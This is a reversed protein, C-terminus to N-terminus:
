FTLTIGGMFNIGAQPYVFNETILNGYIYSYTYGNSAYSRNLINNVWLSFKVDPFNKAKLLYSLMIDHVHYANLSRDPNSTNDLYQSGVYKSIWGIEMGKVPMFSIQVAAIHAPSFSIDTYNHVSDVVDFGNTYDYLTETFKKIKNMSFTYNGSLTIMRHVRVTSQLEIGTRYSEPVNIRIPAGVDNLAGTLVLQDKYHMYYINADLRWINAAYSYGGELDIMIEAKPGNGEPADIIDARVPERGAVGAYIWASSRGNRWDVGAKPNFFSFNRAFDIQIGGNDIGKGSYNVYRYQIDGFISLGYNLIYRGKLYGSYETKASTNRYYEFTGEKNVAYEAWIVEGYHRGKYHNVAGGFILELRNRRYQLSWIGGFFDNNLWRRRIVDGQDIHLVTDGFVDYFLTDSPDFPNLFLLTDGPATFQIPELSYFDFNQNRKYEEYYGRGYTYHGAAHFTLTSSFNHTVHLQYHDQRYNDVQQPYTYYNYTKGSNFLNVSDLPVEYISGLNNYYHSILATDNGEYVAQPTGWWSQYTKEHGAFSIARVLTKSTRYAGQIYYSKLDSAARDIYGDSNIASLRGEFSWERLPQPGHRGPDTGGRPEEFKKWGTGLQLTHRRTNFSGAVTTLEAFPTDLNRGTQMNLSAGFAGTGNTSTGAGRQIQMSSLGSALDPMNVWFVGQSESDNIPIGNVTVNIRTGDSGRIRLGTYGTGNGADSTVVVSPTINLMMPLDRADNFREIENASINRITGNPQLVRTSSVEFEAVMVPDASLIFDQIFDQMLVIRRVETVFGLMTARLIYIGPKVGRIIYDGKSDTVAVYMSSDITIVCGPVTVGKTRGFVKGSITFQAQVNATCLM